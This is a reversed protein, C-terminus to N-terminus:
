VSGAERGMQVAVRAAAAEIRPLPDRMAAVREDDTTALSEIHGIGADRMAEHGEGLTGAVAAVPVGRRRAAETVALTLKGYASQRDIRGEGTIVLTAGTLRADFRLAELVLQAGSVLRADTFALLGFGLGGAAGAGKVGRMSRGLMKEVVDAYR